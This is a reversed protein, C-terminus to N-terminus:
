SEKEGVAKEVEEVVKEETAAPVAEEAPNVETTVSETEEARSEVEALATEEVIQSEAEAAPVTKVEAKGKEAEQIRPSGLSAVDGMRHIHEPVYPLLALHRARKIAMALARQHRACTGTRRRPDIKGRDSIYGRLLTINKYDIEKIKNACFSCFRRRPAYKGGGWRSKSRGRPKSAERAVM